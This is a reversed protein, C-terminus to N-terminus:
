YHGGRMFFSGIVATLPIFRFLAISIVCILLYFIDAIRIVSNAGTIYDGEFGRLTMANFIRQARDFSRLLMQGALSGWAKIAIGREGPARLAYANTLKYREENLLSLYRYTLLLQLIFFRPVHLIRLAFAIRTIGTTAFLVLTALVTLVTKIMLIIFSIWGSSIMVGAIEAAPKQDFLPNFIGIGIVFPLVLVLRIFFPRLPLEALPIIIFPYLFFPLAASLANQPLSIVIVIYFSTVLLKILPHIKHIITKQTALEDFLRMNFLTTLNSNM